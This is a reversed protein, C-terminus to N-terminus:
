VKITTFISRKKRCILIGFMDVKCEVDWLVPLHINIMIIKVYNITCKHRQIVIAYYYQSILKNVSGGLIFIITTLVIIPIRYYNWKTSNPWFSKFVTQCLIIRIKKATLLNSGIDTIIIIIWWFQNNWNCYLVNWLVM